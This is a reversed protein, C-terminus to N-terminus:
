CVGLMWPTSDEDNLPIEQKMKEIKAAPHLVDADLFLGNLRNAV